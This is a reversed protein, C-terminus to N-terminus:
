IDYRSMYGASHGRALSAPLAFGRPLELLVRQGMRGTNTDRVSHRLRSVLAVCTTLNGTAPDPAQMWPVLIAGPRRRAAPNDDLPGEEICYQDWAILRDSTSDDIYTSFVASFI